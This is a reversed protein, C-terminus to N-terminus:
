CSPLGTKTMKTWCWQAGAFRFCTALQSFQFYDIKSWHINFNYAGLTLPFVTSRLHCPIGIWNEEVMVCTMCHLHDTARPPATMAALVPMYRCWPAFTISSNRFGLQLSRRELLWWYGPEWSHHEQGLDLRRSSQAYRLLTCLRDTVPTCMLKLKVGGFRVSLANCRSEASLHLWVYM